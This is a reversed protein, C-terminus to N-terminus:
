DGNPPNELLAVIFQTIKSHDGQMSAVAAPGYPHEPRPRIGVVPLLRFRSLVWNAILRATRGSGNAFPHIRVWEGHAWGALKAIQRLEEKSKEQNLRIRAALNSMQKQLQGFFRVLQENVENPPAGRIGGVSVIMDMLRPHNTGRYAGLLSEDTVYSLGLLCDKHWQAVQSTDLPETSLAHRILDKLVQM